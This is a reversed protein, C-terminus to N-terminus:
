EQGFLDEVVLSVGPPDLLLEGQRLIATAILGNDGRRHHLVVRRGLDIILYHRVSALGFYDALKGAKDLSATSPSLVEVIIMPNPVLRVDGSAREGCHVSVDPIYCSQESIAVGPGDIFAECPLGARKIAAALASWAAAKSRAHQIVGPAMAVIQGRVLEYKGEQRDSWDLFDSLTMQSKPLATMAPLIVPFVGSKSGGHAWDHPM